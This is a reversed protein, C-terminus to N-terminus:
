GVIGEGFKMIITQSGCCIIELFCQWIGASVMLRMGIQQTIEFSFVKKERNRLLYKIWYSLGELDMISFYM